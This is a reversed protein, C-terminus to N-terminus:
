SLQLIAAPWLVSDAPAPRKLGPARRGPAENLAATESVRFLNALRPEATNVGVKRLRSKGELLLTASQRELCATM